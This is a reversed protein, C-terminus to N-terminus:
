EEKTVRRNDDSNRDILINYPDIGVEKPEADVTITWKNEIESIKHKKIYLVQEEEKGDVETRGFIGVDVYDSLPYSKLPKKKGDVTLSDIFGFEDEYVQRGREDTRYKRVHATIDVTYTGDGNDTYQTEEIRNDYLTIALFNDDIFYDLSDPTAEKLMGVLELANTYPPEQFAVSDIYASLVNSLKQEGILDSLAYFVISGKQYHIYPQNENLALPLEKSAELSRNLLYKDLADKLFIRKKEVGYRHELVKLSSYESLSESLMTAGKVNAGIVQHAWWQHALEHATISYAYDVGGDDTDDVQAMFGVNESFPITGAFSQAFSARPFELIRVYSHQYPSYNETFYDLGDKLGRFMRDLNYEHGKHYYITLDIDNWKDQAVKYRASSINFFNLMPREMKYHFHNRGEEQWEKQLIGPAIATQDGATSLKIEFNVWDASNSIYTNAYASTDTIDPMREKEPLDYKTRTKNTVLEFGDQYGLTPFMSSNLFTGNKRVAITRKFADDGENNLSFDLRMTDGPQLPDALGYIKINNLSDHVALSVERDMELDTIYPAYDLYLTDILQETKNKLLYYGEARILYDEPYLDATINVDVIRPQVLAAYRKYAKEYDVIQLEREKSSYYDQAINNKYYIYYGLGGFLGMTVLLNVIKPASWIAGKFASLAGRSVGRRWFIWALGAFVLGGLIWYLRYIFYRTQTYGYGDIDSYLINPGDNFKYIAQEVGVLGLFTTGIGVVLVAVLGIYFNPIISFIFLAFLTWPMFQIWRVVWSDYAYLDLEFIYYGQSIQYIIGAIIPLVLLVGQMITISVFKSTLFSLSATNTTDELQYINDTTRRNIILGTYVMTLLTVFLRFTAAPIGIVRSTSPWTSTQLLEAGFALMLILMLLGLISIVLFPGGSLIYKLDIKSLNILSSFFQGIGFSRKVEPLDLTLNHTSKHAASKLEPKKWFKWSWSKPATHFEFARYSMMLIGAGIAIWLLRNWIVYGTFPVLSTNEESITWYKTYYLSSTVGFPDAMAAYAQNELDSLGSEIIGQLIYFAIMVVFGAVINRSFTVVAFIVASFLFTGPLVYIAYTHLYPMMRHPGIMDPNVGPVNMGIMIGAAIFITLILCITLASLYKGFFYDRKSFPFSYMVQHVNHKYDKYISAGAVNPFLLFLIVAIGMVLGLIGNPSNIYKLSTVSATNGDFAGSSAATMLASFAMVLLAYVFIAPRNFWSNLEFSYIKGLM